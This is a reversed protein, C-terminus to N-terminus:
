DEVRGKIAIVRPLNRQARYYLEAVVTKGGIGMEKGVREFLASDIPLGDKKHLERVRQHVEYRRDERETTPKHVGKPRGLEEDWSGGQEVRESATKLADAAWDPIPHRFMAAFLIARWLAEKRGAEYLTRLDEAANDSM